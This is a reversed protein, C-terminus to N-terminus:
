GMTPTYPADFFDAIDKDVVYQKLGDSIRAVGRFSVKGTQRTIEKGEKTHFTHAMLKPKAKYIWVYRDGGGAQKSKEAKFGLAIYPPEDGAKIIMGENSDLTHGQLKAMVEVSFGTTEMEITYESDPTISDYEVDDAYQRNAEADEPTISVNIAGALPTVTSYTTSTQDDKTVTAMVLNKLGITM